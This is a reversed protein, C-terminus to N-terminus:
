KSLTLLAKATRRALEIDPLALDPLRSFPIMEATLPGTYKMEGLAKLVAPFDVEGVPLEEGFGHLNGGALTDGQWNKIHVAKIRNGLTQIYDQPRVYLCCNGVDFYMGIWESKFQDLYVRWEVPSFLFRNWVNELAIHIKLERAVPELESLSKVSQNWVTEYSTVPRTPDWAVRSAGAVVLITEVGLWKAIQLYRGTFEVAQRREPEDDSGLSTGWYFGSALTRLGISKQRAFEAIKRCESESIDSKIADGVTLEVGDLGAQQAWEIFEFPSKAGSFGGFVWYNLAKYM